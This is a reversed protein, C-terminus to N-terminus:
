FLLKAIGLARWLKKRVDRGLHFCSLKFVCATNSINHLNPFTLEVIKSGQLGKWLLIYKAFKINCSLWYDLIEVIASLFGYFKQILCDELQCRRIQLYSFHVDATKIAVISACMICVKVRQVYNLLPTLFIWVHHMRQRWHFWRLTFIILPKYWTYSDNVNNKRM